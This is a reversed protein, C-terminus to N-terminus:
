YAGVRRWGVSWGTENDALDTQTVEARMDTDKNTANARAAAAKAQEYTMSSSRPWEPWYLWVGAERRWTYPAYRM